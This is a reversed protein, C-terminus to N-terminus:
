RKLGVKKVFNEATHRSAPSNALKNLIDQSKLGGVDGALAVAWAGLTAERAGAAVSRIMPM